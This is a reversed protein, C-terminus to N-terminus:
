LYGFLLTFYFKWPSRGNVEDVGYALDAQVRTPMSYYSVLDLRLQAGLDRLPASRDYIPDVDDISDDWAKGIDAYVAGYIKDLYLQQFRGGINPVIPFRFTATGMMAKRGEISYFTYGKMFNLGGLHYDFFDNVLEKDDVKDSALWGGYFRLGASTNGPLGV